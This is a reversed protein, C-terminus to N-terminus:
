VRRAAWEELVAWPALCENVILTDIQHDAVRVPTGQRLLNVLGRLKRAPNRHQHIIVNAIFGAGLAEAQRYAEIKTM